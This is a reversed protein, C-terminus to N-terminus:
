SFIVVAKIQILKGILNNCETCM